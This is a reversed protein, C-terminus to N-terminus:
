NFTQRGFFSVGIDGSFALLDLSASSDVNLTKIMNYTHQAFAVTEQQGGTNGTTTGTPSMVVLGPYIPELLRNLRVGDGPQLYIRDHWGATVEQAPAPLWLFVGFLTLLATRFVNYSGKMTQREDTNKNSKTRMAQCRRM